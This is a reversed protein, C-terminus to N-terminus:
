RAACLELYYIILEVQKVRLCFWEGRVRNRWHVRHLYDEIEEYNIVNRHYVLALEIPNGIQLNSFRKEPRTSKGIKYYKTDGHRIVYISGSPGKYHNIWDRKVPWGNTYKFKKM